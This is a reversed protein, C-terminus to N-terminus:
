IFKKSKYGISLDLINSKNQLKQSKYKNVKVKNVYNTTHNQIGEM